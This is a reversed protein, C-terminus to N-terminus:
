ALLLEQSRSSGMTVPGKTPALAEGECATIMGHCVVLVDQVKSPSWLPSIGTFREPPVDLGAVAQPQRHVRQCPRPVWFHASSVADKPHLRIARSTM